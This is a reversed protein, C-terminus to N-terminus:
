QPNVGNLKNIIHTLDAPEYLALPNISARNRTQRAYGNERCTFRAFEVNNTQDIHRSLYMVVDFHYPLQPGLKPTVAFPEVFRCQNDADVMEVAKCTMIVHKNHTQTLTLYELVIEITAATTNPSFKRPDSSKRKEELLINESLASISDVFITKYRTCDKSTRIWQLIDKAEAKNRAVVYPLHMHQLSRLGPETTVILPDPASAAMPTKGAGALGFILGSVAESGADNTWYIQPM